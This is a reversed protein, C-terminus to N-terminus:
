ANEAYERKMVEPYPMKGKAPIRGSLVDFAYVQSEPATYGFIKRKIHKINKLALPNGFHVVTSLKGSIALANMVSELRRTLCDTGLYAGSTCFSVFVVDDYRTATNLM